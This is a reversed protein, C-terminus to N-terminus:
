RLGAGRDAGDDREGETATAAPSYELLAGALGESFRELSGPDAAAHTPNLESVTLAAVRPDAVLTAVAALALDLPVGTGRKTNEAIPADNFSVVDVDFHVAIRANSPLRALASRAAEVADRRVEDIDIRAIRERVIVSREWGTAEGLDHGLLVVRGPDLLPLRPGAECLVDEADDLALMHALGMWDLAGDPVSSPVNLDAHLDLYVLGVDAHDDALGAVTGIGVTCDGGLVLAFAEGRRAVRARVHAVTSCVAALNQARPRDRDPQWAFETGDGLDRVAAGRDALQGLLGGARLAAPAQEQGISFAGASSPAGIVVIERM